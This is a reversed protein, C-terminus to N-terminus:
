RDDGGSTAPDEFAVAGLRAIRGAALGFGRLVVVATLLTPVLLAVAVLATVIRPAIRPGESRLSQETAGLCERCHLIGDLRIHCEGCVPRRCSACRGLPAREPHHVCGGAREANTGPM